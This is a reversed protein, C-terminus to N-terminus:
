QRSLWFARVLVHKEWYNPFQRGLCVRTTSRVAGNLFDENLFKWEVSNEEVVLYFNREM